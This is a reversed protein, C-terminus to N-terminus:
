KKGKGFKNGTGSATGDKKKLQTKKATGDCNPNGYNVGNGDAQLVSGVVKSTPANVGTGAKSGKYKNQSYNPNDVHLRAGNGKGNQSGTPDQAMTVTTFAFLTAAALIMLKKM